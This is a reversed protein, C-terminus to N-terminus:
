AATPGVPADWAADLRSALEEVSARSADVFEGLAARNAEIRHWCEAVKERLPSRGSVPDESRGQERREVVALPAWLTVIRIETGPALGDRFHALHREDLFCYDFIVREAGMGRYAAVLTAAARYTSGAGLHTAADEPAFARLDDGHISVTGPHRRALARSVTTKGVGPPGNVVLVDVRM